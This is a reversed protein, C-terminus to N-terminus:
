SHPESARRQPIAMIVEATEQFQVVPVDVIQEVTHNCVGVVVLREFIRESVFEQRIVRSAEVM